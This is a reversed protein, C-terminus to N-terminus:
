HHPYTIVRVPRIKLDIRQETARREIPAYGGFFEDVGAYLKAIANISAFDPDDAIEEVVGRVDIWRLPNDPDIATLAVKPNRRVNKEKRRGAATNVIVFEGDWRCWVVTNEPQGDPAMTTLVVYVPGTLLDIHSDPIKDTL